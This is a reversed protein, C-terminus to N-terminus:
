RPTEEVWEGSVPVPAGIPQRDVVIGREAAYAMVAKESEAAAAATELKATADPSPPPNRMRETLAVLKVKAERVLAGDGPEPAPLAIPSSGALLNREPEGLATPKLRGDALAARIVEPALARDHGLSLEWAAARGERRAREVERNYAERFAMRAGAKDGGVLVPRAMAWAARMEETWVVTLREDRERLCLSWAEEAGPRGDNGGILELIEAPTPPFRSTRVHEDLAQRVTALPFPAMVRFWLATSTENPTYQGRSLMSCVSDLLAAFQPLDDTTM